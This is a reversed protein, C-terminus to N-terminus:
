HLLLLQSKQHASTQLKLPTRFINYVNRMEVIQSKNILIKPIKTIVNCPQEIRSMEESNLLYIRVNM